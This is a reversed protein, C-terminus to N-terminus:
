CGPNAMIIRLSRVPSDASVVGNEVLGKHRFRLTLNTGFFFESAYDSAVISFGRSKREPILNLVADSFSDFNTLM